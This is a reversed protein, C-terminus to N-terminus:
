RDYNCLECKMALLLANFCHEYRLLQRCWHAKDLELAYMENYFIGKV